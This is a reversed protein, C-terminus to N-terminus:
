PNNLTDFCANIYDDSNMVAIKVSSPYISFQTDWPLKKQVNLKSFYISKLLWPCTRSRFIFFVDTFDKVDMINKLLHKLYTVLIQHEM